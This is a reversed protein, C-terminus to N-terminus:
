GNTGSMKADLAETAVLRRAESSPEIQSGLELVSRLSKSALHVRLPRRDIRKHGPYGVKLGISGAPLSDFQILSWPRGGEVGVRERNPDVIVAGVIHRVVLM